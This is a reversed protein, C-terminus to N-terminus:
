KRLGIFRAFSAAANYLDSNLVTFYPAGLSFIEPEMEAINRRQLEIKKLVKDAADQDDRYRLIARQMLDEGAVQIFCGELATGALQNEFMWKVQDATRPCGDLIVVEAGQEQRKRILDLIEARIKDEHPFLNGEAMHKTDAETSLRRAIDGTSIHAVIEKSADKVANILTTKGSCPLGFVGVIRGSRYQQRQNTLYQNRM